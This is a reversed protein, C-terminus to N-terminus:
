GGGGGTKPLLGASYLAAFLAVRAAVVWFAAVPLLLLGHLARPTIFAVPPLLWDTLRCFWRYIYNRSEQTRGQTPLFLALALRGFLTYFLLSLAYNPLHFYWYAWWIDQGAM